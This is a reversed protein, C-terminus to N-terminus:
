LMILHVVIMMYNNKLYAKCLNVFCDDRLLQLHTEFRLSLCFLWSMFNKWILRAFLLLLHLICPSSLFRFFIWLINRILSEYNLAFPVLESLAWKFFTKLDFVSFLIHIWCGLQLLQYSLKFILRYIHSNYYMIM